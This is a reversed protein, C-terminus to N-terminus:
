RTAARTAALASDLAAIIEEPPVGRDRAIAGLSQRRASGPDVGLAAAVTEPPLDFVRVIFMPTMWPEFPHPDDALGAMWVAAVLARIGFFVAAAVAAVLGLTLWPHRRFSRLVPDTMM